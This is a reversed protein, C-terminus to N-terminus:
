CDWIKHCPTGDWDVSFNPTLLSDVPVSDRPTGQSDRPSSQSDGPLGQSDVPLGQSDRPTVPVGKNYKIKVNFINTGM